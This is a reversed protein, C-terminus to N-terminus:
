IETAAYPLVWEPATKWSDAVVAKIAAQQLSRIGTDSRSRIRKM